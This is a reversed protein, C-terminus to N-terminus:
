RAVGQRRSSSQQASRAYRRIGGLLAANVLAAILGYRLIPNARTQRMRHVGDSLDGPFYPQALRKGM